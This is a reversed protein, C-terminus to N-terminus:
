AFSEHLVLFLYIVQVHDAWDAVRLTHMCMQMSNYEQTHSSIFTDICTQLMPKM